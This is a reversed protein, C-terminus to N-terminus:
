ASAPTHQSKERIYELLQGATIREVNLEGFCQLVPGYMGKDSALHAQKTSGGSLLRNRDIIATSCTRRFSLAVRQVKTDETRHIVDGRLLLLDGVDLEPTARLEEINVPLEYEDGSEDDAVRTPTGAVFHQAGRAEIKRYQEPARARLADLPVISLNSLKRDAKIIPVYFNLYHLQQQFLLYDHDQHWVLSDMGQEVAFYLAAISLDANLKTAAHVAVATSRMKNELRGMAALSASIVSYRGRETVPNGIKGKRAYYDCIRYDDCLFKIEAEDLFGKVHVFGKTNLDQWCANAIDTSM